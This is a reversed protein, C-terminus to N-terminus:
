ASLERIRGDRIEIRRRAAAATEPDHTVVIITHGEDNFRHLLELVAAKDESHLEGTPEDALILRPHNALARAIAVRQRQGGSLRAPTFSLREGLGVATLLHAARDYRERVPLGAAEMPLAVNELATIDKLLHFRQFVFGIGTLRLRTREADDLRSVEQDDFVVSGATPQDLLGLIQMGYPEAVYKNILVGFGLSVVIGILSAVFGILVAELVVVLLITRGPIGIARLTAFELRREIVSRGLMNSVFLAGIGLAMVSLILSFAVSSSNAAEAQKVLETPTSVQLAAVEALRERVAAPQAADIAIINVVDGVPARDRFAGYDLYAFSDTNFGVGRLRGIGVVTFDRGNLRLSDGISLQKGRGLKSGLVVENSRRLWRGEQLVLMDPIATPDGDVGITSILEAPEDGRRPGERDREM